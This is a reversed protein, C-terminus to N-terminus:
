YISTNSVLGQLQAVVESVMKLIEEKLVSQDKMSVSCLSSNHRCVCRNVQLSARAVRHVCPQVMAVDLVM